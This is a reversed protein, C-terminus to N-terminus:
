GDSGGQPQPGPKNGVFCDKAHIMSSGCNYCRQCPDAGDFTKVYAFMLSERLSGTKEYQQLYFSAFTNVNKSMWARNTALLEEPRLSQEVFQVLRAKADDSKKVLARYEAQDDDDDAYAGCDFSANTCELLLDKLKPIDM